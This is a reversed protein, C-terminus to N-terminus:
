ATLYEFGVASGYGPTGLGVDALDEGLHSGCYTTGASASAALEVAGM